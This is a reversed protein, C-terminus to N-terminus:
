YYIKRPYYFVCLFCNNASIRIPKFINLSVDKLFRSKLFNTLCLMINTNWIHPFIFQWLKIVFMICVARPRFFRAFFSAVKQVLNTELTLAILERNSTASKQYLCVSNFVSKPRSFFAKTPLVNLKQKGTVYCLYNRHNLITHSSHCMRM